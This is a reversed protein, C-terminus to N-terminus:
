VRPIDRRVALHADAGDLPHIGDELPFVEILRCLLGIGMFIHFRPRRPFDFVVFFDRGFKKIEDNNILAVAGDVVEPLLDQIIKVGEVDPQGGGRVLPGEPEKIFVHDAFVPMFLCYGVPDIDPKVGVQYFCLNGPLAAFQSGPLPHIFPVTQGAFFPPLLEVLFHGVAAGIQIPVHDIGTLDSVHNFGKTFLQRFHEGAALFDGFGENKRLGVAVGVIDDVDHTFFKILSVCKTFFHGVLCVFVWFGDQGRKAIIVRRPNGDGNVHDGGARVDLGEFAQEEHPIDSGSVVKLLHLAPPGPGQSIVVEFFDGRRDMGSFGSKNNDIGHADATGDLGVAPGKFSLFRNGQFVEELRHQHSLGIFIGIGRQCAAEGAQFPLYRFFLPLLERAQGASLGNMGQRVAKQVGVVRIFDNFGRLFLQCQRRICFRLHLQLLSLFLGGLLFQNGAGPVGKGAAEIFKDFSDALGVLLNDIGNVKILYFVGPPVFLGPFLRFLGDPIEPGEDFCVLIFDRGKGDEVILGVVAPVDGIFHEFLDQVGQFSVPGAKGRHLDPLCILLHFLYVALGRFVLEGRQNGQDPMDGADVPGQGRKFLGDVPVKLFPHKVFLGSWQFKGLFLHCPQTHDLIM